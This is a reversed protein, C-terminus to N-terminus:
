DRARKWNFNKVDRKEGREYFSWEAKIHDADVFTLTLDHMHSDTAPNMNTGGAFGFAIQSPNDFKTARMHPQNGVACYHTLMLADGDLHYMTVMEHPTGPFLTEEVASGASTVRYVVIQKPKAQSEDPKAGPEVASPEELDWKGALSKMKEFASAAPSPKAAPEAADPKQNTEAVAAAKAAPQDAPVKPAPSNQRPAALATSAFFALMMTAFPSAFRPM